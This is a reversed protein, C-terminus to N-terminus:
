ERKEMTQKMSVSVKLSRSIKIEGTDRGGLEYIYQANILIGGGRYGQQGRKDCLTLGDM